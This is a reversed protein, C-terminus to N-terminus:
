QIVLFLFELVVLGLLSYNLIKSYSYSKNLSQLAQAQQSLLLEQEKLLKERESSSNQLSAILLLQENNNSELNELETLAQDILSTTSAQQASLQQSLLVLCLALLRVWM